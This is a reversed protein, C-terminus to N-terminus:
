TTGAQGELTSPAPETGTPYSLDQVGQLCFALAYFPFLITLFEIFVKFITQMFSFDRLFILTRYLMELDQMPFAHRGLFGLMATSYM